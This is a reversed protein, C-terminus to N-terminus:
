QETLGPTQHTIYVMKLSTQNRRSSSFGISEYLALASKNERLVELKLVKSQREDAMKIVENSLKRGVGERRNNELVYLGFLTSEDSQWGMSIIGVLEKDLFAGLSISNQSASLLATIEPVSLKKEPDRRGRYKLDANAKERIAGYSVTDDLTLIRIVIASNM